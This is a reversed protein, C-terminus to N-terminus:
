VNRSRPQELFNALHYKFVFGCRCRRSARPCIPAGANKENNRMKSSDCSEKEPAPRRENGRDDKVPHASTKADAHTPVSQKSMATIFDWFHNFVKKHGATRQGEFTSGNLPSHRVPYMVGVRIFRAIRVCGAM